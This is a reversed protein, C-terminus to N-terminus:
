IHGIQDNQVRIDITLIPFNCIYIFCIDDPRHSVLRVDGLTSIAFFDNKTSLNYRGIRTQVALGFDRSHLSLNM